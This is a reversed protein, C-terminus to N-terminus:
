QADGIETLPFRTVCDHIHKVRQLQEASLGAVTM